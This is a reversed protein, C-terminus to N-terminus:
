MLQGSSFWAEKIYTIAVSAVYNEILIPQFTHIKHYMSLDLFTNAM